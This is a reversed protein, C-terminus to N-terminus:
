EKSALIVKSTTIITSTPKQASEYLLNKMKRTMMIRQNRDNNHIQKKITTIFLNNRKISVKTIATIKTIM